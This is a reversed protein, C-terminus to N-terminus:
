GADQKEIFLLITPPWIATDRSPCKRSVGSLYAPLHLGPVPTIPLQAQVKKPLPLDVNKRLAFIYKNALAYLPM